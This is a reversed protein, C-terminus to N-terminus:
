NDQYKPNGRYRINIKGKSFYRLINASVYHHRGSILDGAGELMFLSGGVDFLLDKTSFAVIGGFAMIGLGSVRNGIKIYKDKMKTFILM